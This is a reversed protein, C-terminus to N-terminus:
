MSRLDKSYARLRLTRPMPRVAVSITTDSLLLQIRATTRQHAPARNELKISRSSRGQMEAPRARGSDVRAISGQNRNSGTPNSTQSVCQEVTTTSFTAVLMAQIAMTKGCKIADFLSWIISFTSELEVHTFTESHCM